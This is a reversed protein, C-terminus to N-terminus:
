QAGVASVHDGASLGSTIEVSNSDEIGTTVPTKVPGNPTQKLVYEQTGETIIASKPVELVNQASGTHITANAHMGNAIAPDANVFILTVKYGGGTGGPSNPDISPSSDVSGVTAPFDRGAGYADLNVDATDGAKVKAVDNEALYVNVEFTGNPILSIAQTNANVVDGPKISVSAITGGFPAVIEQQHIQAEIGAVVAQQAEIAQSTAGAVTQNLQDQASQVALQQTTISENASTLSTILGNVTNRAGNVSAYAATQQAQTFGAAGINATSIATLLDTLFTEVTNLDALSEQTAAQLQAPSSSSTIASIDKQWQPFLTILAAREAAVTFKISPNATPTITFTLSPDAQYSFNFLPDAGTTVAGESETYADVLTQQYNTYTNSLTTEAAQVATQKGAVDVSRAPAELLDLQAQAAELSASLVSTDLTALLTGASVKEGATAHVTAVQGSQEFSLTPNQVPSVLGTATVDQTINGNTVTAYAVSPPAAEILYYAASGAAIVIVVGLAIQVARNQLLQSLSPM